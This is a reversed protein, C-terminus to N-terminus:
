RELRLLFVMELTRSCRGDIVCCVAPGCDDSVEDAMIEECSLCLRLRSCLCEVPRQAVGNVTDCICVCDRYMVWNHACRPRLWTPFDGSPGASVVRTGSEMQGGPFSHACVHIKIHTSARGRRDPSGLARGGESWDSLLFLTAHDLTPPALPPPSSPWSYMDSM